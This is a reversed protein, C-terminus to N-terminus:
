NYQKLSQNHSSVLHPKTSTTSLGQQDDKIEYEPYTQKLSMLIQSQNISPHIIQCNLMRKLLIEPICTIVFPVTFHLSGMVGYDMYDLTSFKKGGPHKTLKVQFIEGIAPGRLAIPLAGSEYTLPGPNSVRDPLM